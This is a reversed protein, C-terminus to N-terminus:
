KAPDHAAPDLTVWYRCINAGNKVVTNEYVGGCREITKRSAANDEHASIMVALIGRQRYYPLVARLMIESYHHGRFRPAVTYGIHGGWELLEGKEIQWRCNIEGVIEGDLFGYYRTATSWDPKSTETEEKKLRAVYLDFLDFDIAAYAANDELPRFPNTDSLRDAVYRQFAEKDSVELTRIELKQM